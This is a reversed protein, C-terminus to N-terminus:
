TLQFVVVAVFALWVSSARARSAAPLKVSEAGSVTVTELVVAGAGSVVRGRDRQCSRSGSRDRAGDRNRGRRRVVDTDRADLEQEIAGQEAGLGGGSGILTLQSVVVAVFALWVSSARARSAAPLKVSEAGSVSVTELVVAGAGSGVAGVCITPKGASRKYSQFGPRLEMPPTGFLVVTKM